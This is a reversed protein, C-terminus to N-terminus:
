AKWFRGTGPGRLRVHGCEGWHAGVHWVGYTNSGMSDERCAQSGPATGDELQQHCALTSLM